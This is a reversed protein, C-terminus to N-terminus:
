QPLIGGKDADYVDMGQYGAKALVGDKTSFTFRSDQATDGNVYCEVKYEGASPTGAGTGLDIEISEIELQAFITELKAAQEQTYGEEVLAAAVAGQTTSTGASQSPQTSNSSGSVSSSVTTGAKGTNPTKGEDKKGFPQCAGLLSLLFVVLCIGMVTLLRKPPRIGRRCAASTFWLWLCAGLVLLSLIAIVILM